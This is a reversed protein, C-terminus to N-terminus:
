WHMSIYYGYQQMCWDILGMTMAFLTLIITMVIAAKDYIFEGTNKCNEFLVEVGLLIFLCPWLHFILQYSLAPVFLHVLFLSGFLVLGAGFTISGIRHTKKIGNEEM